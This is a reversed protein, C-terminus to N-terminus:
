SASTLREYSLGGFVLLANVFDFKEVADNGKVDLLDFLLAAAQQEITGSAQPEVAKQEKASAPQKAPQQAAKAPAVQSPTQLRSMSIGGGRVRLCLTSDSRAAPPAMLVPQRTARRCRSRVILEM